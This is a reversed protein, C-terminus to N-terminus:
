TQCNVHSGRALAPLDPALHAGPNGQSQPLGAAPARANQLEAVPLLAGAGFKVGAWRRPAADGAEEDEEGGGGGGLQVGQAACFLRFWEGVPVSPERHRMILSYALCGDEWTRGPERPLGRLLRWPQGLAAHLAARPAPALAARPPAADDFLLAAAGPPRAQWPSLLSPIAEALLAALREGPTQLGARSIPLVLFPARCTSPQM